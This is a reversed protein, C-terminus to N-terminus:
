DDMLRDAQRLVAQVLAPTPAECYLRLVPETGSQRFLVWGDQGFILKVGDLQNIQTVRMGAIRRPPSGLLEAIRRQGEEPRSERDKRDYAFRGYEKEMRAVLMSLSCDELVMAELLFLASLIGDREPLFDRFGFGGSEEGGLLIERKRLLNAVHKFGIPLEHFPLSHRRAIREVRLSGAFTKALGGREGRTEIFHRALIPLLLVPSLFRGKEDCAALRDADGDTAFGAAAKRRRVERFLAGLNQPMPEPNSGGFLPDSDGRLSEVRTRGGHLVQQLLTGGMGHMADHLLKLGATRVEKMRVQNKLVKLYSPLFSPHNALDEDERPGPDTVPILRAIRETEEADLTGGDSSKLKLGNYEPPNHSATIMVGLSAGASSVRFSLAPTPLPSPTLVPVFRESALHNAVERAFRGSLFRGDYGIVVPSSERGIAHLYAAIGAACRRVGSVTFEEAIKGRWGDTGFRIAPVGAVRGIPM